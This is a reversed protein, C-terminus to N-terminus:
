RARRASAGGPRNHPTPVQGPGAATRPLTAESVAEIVMRFEHDSGGAM